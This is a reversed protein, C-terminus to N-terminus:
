VGFFFYDIAALLAHRAPAVSGDAKKLERSRM